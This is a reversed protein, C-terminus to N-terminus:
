SIESVAKTEAVRHQSSKKTTFFQPFFEGYYGDIKAINVEMFLQNKNFYLHIRHAHVQIQKLHKLDRKILKTPLYVLGM